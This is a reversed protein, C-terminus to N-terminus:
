SCISLPLLLLFPPSRVFFKKREFFMFKVTSISKVKRHLTLLTHNTNYLIGDWRRLFGDTVNVVIHETGM